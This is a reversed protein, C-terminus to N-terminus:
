SSLHILRTTILDRYFLHRSDCSIQLVLIFEDCSYRATNTHITPRCFCANDCYKSGVIRNSGENRPHCTIFLQCSFLMDLKCNHQWESNIFFSVEPQVLTLHFSFLQHVDAFIVCFRGGFSIVIRRMEGMM